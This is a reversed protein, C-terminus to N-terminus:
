LSLEISAVCGLGTPVHNPCIKSLIIKIHFCLFIEMNLAGKLIICKRYFDRKFFEHLETVSM